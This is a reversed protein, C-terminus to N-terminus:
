IDSYHVNVLRGEIEPRKERNFIGLSALEESFKDRFKSLRTSGEGPAISYMQERESDELFDTGTLMTDTVSAPIEADDEIWSNTNQETEIDADHRINDVDSLMSNVQSCCQSTNEYEPLNM